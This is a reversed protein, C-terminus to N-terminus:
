DLAEPPIVMSSPAVDPNFAVGVQQNTLMEAIARGSLAAYGAAGGVFRSLRDETDFALVMTGGSTEFVRPADGQDLLLYLESVAFREFFALRLADNDPSAEMAAHATDLPTESM